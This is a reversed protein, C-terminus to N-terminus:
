SIPYKRYLGILQGLFGLTSWTVSNAHTQFLLPTGGSNLDPRYIRQSGPDLKSM